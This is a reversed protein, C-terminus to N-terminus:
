SFVRKSNEEIKGFMDEGRIESIGVVLKDLESKLDNVTRIKVTFPADTELLIRSSPLAKITDQGRKTRLMKSNISFWGGAEIAKKRETATGTFWHFICANNSFTDAAMLEEIVAGSAKVSHISLIKGGEKACIKAIKRFCNIQLEKSTVFGTNFDLGVEGIFRSGKALRLFLNIEWCRDVILQPHM